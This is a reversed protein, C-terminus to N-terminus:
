PAVRQVPLETRTTRDFARMVVAGDRISLFIVVRESAGPRAGVRGIAYRTASEEVFPPGPNATVLVLEFGSANNEPPIVSASQNCPATCGIPLIQAFSGNPTRVGVSARLRGDPGVLSASTAAPKGRSASESTGCAALLVVSASLWAIAVIRILAKLRRGSSADFPSARRPRPRIVDRIANLVAKSDVRVSTACRM